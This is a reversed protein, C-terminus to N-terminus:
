FRFKQRIEPTLHGIKKLEQLYEALYRSGRGYPYLNSQIKCMEGYLLGFVELSIPQGYLNTTTPNELNRYKSRIEPTLKGKKRIEELYQMLSESGRGDISHDDQFKCMELFITGLIAMNLPTGHFKVIKDNISRTGPDLTIGHKELDFTDEDNNRHNM